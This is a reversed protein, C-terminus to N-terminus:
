KTVEIKKATIIGGPETPFTVEYNIEEEDNAFRFIINYEDLDINFFEKEDVPISFGENMLVDRMQTIFKVVPIGFPHQKEREKFLRTIKTLDDEHVDEYELFEFGFDEKLRSDSMLREGLQFERDSFIYSIANSVAILKTEGNKPGGNREIIRSTFMRENLGDERLEKIMDSTIVEKHIGIIRRQPDIIIEIMGLGMVSNMKVGELKM